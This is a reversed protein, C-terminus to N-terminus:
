EHPRRGFQRFAAFRIGFYSFLMAAGSSIVLALLPEIGPRLLVVAVYIGYNILAVTSQVGVYRLFEAFTPQTALRFTFRRHSLWGVVHAFSISVIRALIPHVGFIATLAKLIGADTTFALSGSLVFGLGHRLPHQGGPAATSWKGSTGSDRTM